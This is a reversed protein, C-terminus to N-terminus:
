YIEDINMFYDLSNYLENLDELSMEGNGGYGDSWGATDVKHCEVQEIFDRVIIKCRQLNETEERSFEVRINGATFKM